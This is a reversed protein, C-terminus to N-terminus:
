IQVSCYSPFNTHEVRPKAGVHASQHESEKFRFQQLKVTIHPIKIKQVKKLTVLVLSVYKLLTMANTKM